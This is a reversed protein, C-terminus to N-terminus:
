EATRLDTKSEETGVTSTGNEAAAATTNKNGEGTAVVHKKEYKQKAIRERAYPCFYPQRGYAVKKAAAAAEIGAKDMADTYESLQNM